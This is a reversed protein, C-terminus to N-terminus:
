HYFTEQNFKVLQTFHSYVRRNHSIAPIWKPSKKVANLAIKDFEPHLPVSVEADIVKGDENITGTVVIGATYSNKFYLNGPFYLERSLYKSWGKNGGPFEAKADHFTTDALTGNVDFYQKEKLIGNDYLEAASINGNKHYYNWRGHQNIFGVYRGASSPQGNDFWSVYVGSGKENINFSDKASGDLYWSLSIGKLNGNNYNLSDQLSGNRYYDLWTGVKLNNDYKGIAKVKGDPFFWYFTGNKIKNEADEYLGLMQLKNITLFYDSTYWGSDTKTTISYFRAGDSSFEEKWNEDYFKEIFKQSFSNQFHLFTFILLFILKYM